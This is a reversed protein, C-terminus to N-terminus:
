FGLDIDYKTKHDEIASDLDFEDNTLAEQIIQNAAYTQKALGIIYENFKTIKETKELINQYIDKPLTDKTSEISQPLSDSDCHILPLKEPSRSEAISITQEIKPLQYPTATAIATDAATIIADLNENTLEFNRAQAYNYLDQIAQKAHTTQPMDNQAYEIGHEKVFDTIISLYNAAARLETQQDIYTDIDTVSATKPDFAQTSLGNADTNDLICQVAAHTFDTNIIGAKAFDSAIDFPAKDSTHLNNAVNDLLKNNAVAYVTDIINNLSYYIREATSNINSAAELQQYDEYPIKNLCQMLEIYPEFMDDFSLTPYEDDPSTWHTLQSLNRNIAHITNATRKANGPNAINDDILTSLVATEAHLAHKLATKDEPTQMMTDAHEMIANSASHILNEVTHKSTISTDTCNKSNYTNILNDSLVTKAYIDTSIRNYRDPRYSTAYMQLLSIDPSGDSNLAQYELLKNIQEISLKDLGTNNLDNLAWQPIPQNQQAAKKAADIAGNIRTTRATQM